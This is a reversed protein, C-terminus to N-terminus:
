ERLQADSARCDRRDALGEHEVQSVIRTAHKLRADRDGIREQILTHDDSGISASGVRTEPHVGSGAIEDIASRQDHEHVTARGGGRLDDGTRKLIM